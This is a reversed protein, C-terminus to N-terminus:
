TKSACPGKHSVELCLLCHEAGCISCVGKETSKLYYGKCDRKRCAVADKNGQLYLFLKYNEIRNITVADLQKYIPKSKNLDALCGEQLCRAKTFNEAQSKIYGICCEACFTHGCDAIEYLEARYEACVLCLLQSGDKSDKQNM